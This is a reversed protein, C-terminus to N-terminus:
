YATPHPRHPMVPAWAACGDGRPTRSGRARWRWPPGGAAAGRRAAGRGRAQNHAFCDVRRELAADGARRAYAKMLFLANAVHRLNGWTNSFGLGKPTRTVWKGPADLWDRLMEGVRDKYAHEGPFLRSLVVAAGWSNSDWDAAPRPGPPEPPPAAPPAPLPRREGSRRVLRRRREAAPPGASVFGGLYVLCLQQRGAEWVLGTGFSVVPV